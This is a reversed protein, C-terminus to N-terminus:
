HLVHFSVASNVIHRFTSPICHSTFFELGSRAANAQFSFELILTRIAYSPEVQESAAAVPLPGTQMFYFIIM